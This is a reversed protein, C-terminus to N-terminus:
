QLLITKVNGCNRYCGFRFKYGYIDKLIVVYANESEHVCQSILCKAPQIRLLELRNHVMKRIKFVGPIKEKVMSFAKEYVEDTYLPPLHMMSPKSSVTFGGNKEPHKMKLYERRLSPIMNSSGVYQEKDIDIYPRILSDLFDHNPNDLKLRKGNLKKSGVMRLTGNKRIIQSDLVKEVSIWDDLLEIWKEKFLRYFIKSGIIWNNFCFNKVTLHKSFKDKKKSTSWVFEIIGLDLDHYNEEIVSWIIGEVERKFRKELQTVNTPDVDFDFVLRGDHREYLSSHTALIEHSHPFEERHKLFKEFSKFVFFSRGTTKDRKLREHAIIFPEHTKKMKCNMADELNFFENNM